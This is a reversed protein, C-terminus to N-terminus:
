TKRPMGMGGAAPMRDAHIQGPPGKLAHVNGGSSGPQPGGGGGGPGAPPAGGAQQMAAAQTKMAMQVMHKQMHARITGHPDGMAMLQQHTQLHQADNDGPHVPLDFGHELMDNEMAPDVGLDDKISIFVLPALRPGFTNEMIQTIVPALDLRFGQYLQPPIEKVVNLIGIQQQIQAANRANEVGFWRFEFRRNMQIPEVDQMVAKQGMEGYMRITLADDRFQHDYEAFRQLLPTLIGEEMTTCADATTLIDVQQEMAIEAQNRKAGPKGSSNPMMSPNVGLSQFIQDKAALLRPFMSSWMDPFQAFKTDNPSTEWISGLGLVMSAVRPNKEPDTMIIPMAAFHGTDMGENLIDNAAYQFDLVKRVPAVGKVVRAKKNVPVSIVPCKDCWYPNLKIGLVRDEGGGYGRCLRWDGDVEMHTWTEFILAFDGKAKIGAHKALYKSPDPNEGTAEKDMAKLLAEGAERVIEGDKILQKIKAKRWRRKITVSGGQDLADEISSATAPLVVLDADLIVEVDPCGEEAVDEEVDEVEGLEPVGPTVERKVKHVIHRKTKKWGAYLSYQGEVDGNVFLAPVVETRLKTRRVYHELLAMTAHPIDGNETTAEVYRQSQPFIQNTFRTQRADVADAVLSIFVESNGNYFQKDGLICDYADWADKTQDSRDQQDQVGKEVDNLIKLFKERTRARTSLEEDRKTKRAM